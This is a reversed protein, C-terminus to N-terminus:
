IGRAVLQDLNNCRQKLIPRNLRPDGVNLSLVSGRPLVATSSLNLLKNWVDDIAPRESILTLAHHLVSQSTPGRLSFRLLTNDDSTLPSIELGEDLRNQQTALTIQDVLEKYCSPHCWLWLSRKLNNTNNNSLDIYNWLFTM